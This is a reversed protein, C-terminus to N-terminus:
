KRKLTLNGSCDWGGSVKLYWTHQYATGFLINDRINGEQLWAEQGVYGIGEAPKDVAICGARRAMEGLVAELLSSKGAGVPGVVGVLEGGLVTLSLRDMTFLAASHEEEEDDNNFDMHVFSANRLVM